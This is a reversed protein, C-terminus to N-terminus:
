AARHDQVTITEPIKRLDVRNWLTTMGLNHMARQFIEELGELRAIRMEVTPRQYVAKIGQRKHGMSEYALPEAVGIQSQFSDATHRLALMDVGPAIPEWAPRSPVHRNGQRPPAGDAAPRLIRSWNGRRWLKGGLTPFGRERGTRECDAQRYALLLALFPPLDVDRKSGDNKTEEIGHFTGTKKGTAKDYLDYEAVEEVIRLVPCTWVGGQWLQERTRVLNDRHVGASEGYRPGVFGTTLVRLGDVPGLRDALLIIREPPIVGDNGVSKKPKDRHADPGTPKTRRRGYIPNVDRLGADMAATLITSLLSVIHGRTVDDVPLTQQWGDVDFWNFAHIPTHQWKPLLYDNLYVWRKAVTNGRKNNNAMFRRAFEGFTTAAKEPDIWKGADVTAEQKEGYKEATTKTPFGSESGWTGDPLKFRARWTYQKTKKGARTKYVKEAYAM